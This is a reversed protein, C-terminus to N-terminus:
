VIDAIQEATYVLGALVLGAVGLEGATRLWRPLTPVPEGSRVQSAWSAATLVGLTVMFAGAVRPPDDCGCFDRSFYNGLMPVMLPAGLAAMVGFIAANWGHGAPLHAHLWSDLASIGAGVFALLFLFMTVNLWAPDLFAFDRNEPNLVFVSGAAVTIVAAGAPRFAGLRALWPRVMVWAIGAFIGGFVGGFVVLEVTGAASIEGVRNGSETLFGKAEPDALASIRMVVRGGLGGIVIGSLVGAIGGAAVSRLIGGAAEWHANTRQVKATRRM